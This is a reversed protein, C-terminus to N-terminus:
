LEMYKRLMIFVIYVALLNMVLLMIIGLTSFQSPSYPSYPISLNSYDPSNILFLISLYTDGTMWLAFLAIRTTLSLYSIISGLLFGGLILTMFDIFRFLPDSAGLAFLLPIHWAIAPVIGLFGIKRPARMFYYGLIIGSAYLAYHSMMYPTPDKSMLGEVYPNIFLIILIVPLILSKILSKPRLFTFYMSGKGPPSPNGEAYSM